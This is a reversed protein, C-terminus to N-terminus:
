KKSWYHKTFIGTKPNGIKSKMLAPAIVEEGLKEGLDFPNLGFKSAPHKSGVTHGVHKLFDLFGAGQQQNDNGFISGLAELILPDAEEDNEGESEDAFQDALADVIGAPLKNRIIYTQHGLIRDRASQRANEADGSFYNDPASLVVKAEEIEDDTYPRVYISEWIRHATHLNELQKAEALEQEAVYARAREERLAKERERQEKQRANFERVRDKNRARWAKMYTKRNDEKSRGSGFEQSYLEAGGVEQSYLEAGGKMKRITRILDIVQNYDRPDVPEEPDTIHSILHNVMNNYDNFVTGKYQPKLAGGEASESDSSSVSVISNVRTPKRSRSAKLEEQHRRKQEALALKAKQKAEQVAMKKALKEEESMKTREVRESRAEKIEQNQKAIFADMEEKAKRQAEAKLKKM